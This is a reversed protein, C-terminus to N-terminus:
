FVVSTGGFKINSVDISRVRTNRGDRNYAYSNNEGYAASLYLTGKQSPNLQNPRYKFLNKFNEIYSGAVDENFHVESDEGTVSPRPYVDFQFKTTKMINLVYEDSTLQKQEDNLKFTAVEEPYTANEELFPIIGSDNIESSEEIIQHDSCRLKCETILTNINNTTFNVTNLSHLHANFIYTKVNPTIWGSSINVFINFLKTLEPNQYADIQERIYYTPVEASSDYQQVFLRNLEQRLKPINTETGITPQSIGTGPRSIAYPFIVAKNNLDDLFLLGAQNGLDIRTGILTSFFVSPNSGIGQPVGRLKNAGIYDDNTNGGSAEQIDFESSKKDQNARSLAVAIARTGSVSGCTSDSDNRDRPTVRYLHHTVYGMTGCISTKNGNAVDAWYFFDDGLKFEIIKGTVDRQIYGRTPRNTEVNLKLSFISSSEDIDPIEIFAKTNMKMDDSQYLDTDEISTSPVPRNEAPTKIELLNSKLDGYILNEPKSLRVNYNRTGEYKTNLILENVGDPPDSTLSFPYDIGNIKTTPINAPITDVETKILNLETDSGAEEIDMLYKIKEIPYAVKTFDPYYFVSSQDINLQADYLDNYATNTYLCKYADHFIRKMEGNEEFEEYGCIRVIYFHNKRLANDSRILQYGDNRDPNVLYPVAIENQSVTLNEFLVGGRQSTNLGATPNYTDFTLNRSENKLNLVLRMPGYNSPTPISRITSVNSWTDYFELYMRFTNDTELLFDFDLELRNSQEDVRWKFINNVQQGTPALGMKLNFSQMLDSLYGYDSYPTIDCIVEDNEQLEDVVSSIKDRIENNELHFKLLEEGNNKNVDVRVGKFNVSSDAEGIAEILFKKDVDKLKSIERVSASFYSLSNMDVGVAISGSNSQTYYIYEDEDIDEQYKISKIENGSIKTINNSSDIKYFNLQFVKKVLNGDEDMQEDLNFYDNWNEETVIETSPDSPTVEKFEYTTIFKDGPNLILVSEENLKQIKSLIAEPIFEGDGDREIPISFDDTEFFADQLGTQNGIKTSGTIDREPSPFSGIECEQTNPNYSTVYIIGGYEKMGMPIFGPSLKAREVKCNGMTNQLVFENGNFTTTTGNLCYTLVSNPTTLPELDQVM